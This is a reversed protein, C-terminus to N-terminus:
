TRNVYKKLWFFYVTLLWLVVMYITEKIPFNKELSSHHPKNPQYWVSWKKDHLKALIHEAAAPHRFIFDELLFSNQFTTDDVNFVYHAELLYRENAIEKVSWDMSLPTAQATLIHYTYLQDLTKGTFLLTGFAVMCFLALWVPNRL